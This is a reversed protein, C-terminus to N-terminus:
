VYFECVATVLFIPVTNNNHGFLETNLELKQALTTEKEDRVFGLLSLYKEEVDLHKDSGGGWGSGVGVQTQINEQGFLQCIVNALM